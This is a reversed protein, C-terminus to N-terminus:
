KELNKPKGGVWGSSGPLPRLILLPTFCWFMDNVLKACNYHMGLLHSVGFCTMSRHVFESHFVHCSFWLTSVFCPVFHELM